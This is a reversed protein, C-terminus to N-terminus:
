AKFNLNQSYTETRNIANYARNALAALLDKARQTVDTRASSTDSNVAENVAQMAATLEEASVIGDQNTDLPDFGSQDGGNGSGAGGTGGSDLKMRTFMASRQLELAQGLEEKSVAGDHNLDLANYTDLDLGSEELSIKGNGDTDRNSFLAVTLEDPQQRKKSNSVNFLEDRSIASDTSSLPRISM